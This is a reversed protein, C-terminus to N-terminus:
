KVLMRGAESHSGNTMRFMYIGTALNGADFTLIYKKGAEVGTNMVSTVRAGSLDFLDLTIRGTEVATVTFTTWDEAPNPQITVNPILREPRVSSMQPAWPGENGGDGITITQCYQTVNGSCDIATWCRNISYDACCDLEFAFDGAGATIDGVQQGDVFFLGNYTFWGGFGDNVGNYNNAGDGLQYGFYKNSPAHNLTFHSGLYAGFGTLTSNNNNLIYYMWQQHNAAIGGCDAKFGTIFSQTSWTAWDMGNTFEVDVYFGNAPNAANHMTAIVHITGNPYQIFQ